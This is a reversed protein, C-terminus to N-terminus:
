KSMDYKSCYFLNILCILQLQDITKHLELLINFPPSYQLKTSLLRVWWNRCSTNCTDQIENNEIKYKMIKKNCICFARSFATSSPMFHKIKADPDDVFDDVEDFDCGGWCVVVWIDQGWDKTFCCLVSM